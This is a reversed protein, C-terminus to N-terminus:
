LGYNPTLEETEVSSTTEVRIGGKAKEFTPNLALTKKAVKSQVKFKAQAQKKEQEFVKKWKPQQCLNAKNVGSQDKSPVECLEEETIIVTRGERQTIAQRVVKTYYQGEELAKRIQTDRLNIIGTPKKKQSQKPLLNSSESKRVQPSGGAGQKKAMENLDENSILGTDVKAGLIPGRQM